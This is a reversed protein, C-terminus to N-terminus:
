SSLRAATLGSEDRCSPCIASNCRLLPLLRNLCSAPTFPLNLLLLLLADRMFGSGRFRHRWKKRLFGCQPVGNNEMEARGRYKERAHWAGLNHLCSKNRLECWFCTKRVSTDIGQLALDKCTCPDDLNGVILILPKAPNDQLECLCAKFGPDRGPILAVDHTQLVAQVGLGPWWLYWM